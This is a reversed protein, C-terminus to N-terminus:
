DKKIKLDVHGVPGGVHPTVLFLRSAGAPLSRALGAQVATARRLALARLDDDEVRTNALILGEMEAPSLTKDFGLANKPKVFTASKFLQELLRGRDASDLQLDDPSAVTGDGGAQMLESLKRAKMRHELLFRRLGERDRQGDAGGEIEFSIGPREQMAKALTGLKQRATGDLDAAGAAFDVRSLEDGGGFASAILSFPATVAKVVLNGLVKLVAHAVKFDPDDLSGTIPLDIDIVGHRDKLLAVALRVPLKVADPSPVKDGFTFQDLVLRNKADLRRNAIKYDLSIGVKGKSIQYGAYKGAYPSTPPLEVDKLDVQVDAFLEKALPNIKGAIILAGTRNIAGHLDVDATTGPMSTLGSIRGGLDTLEATFAPHITRDTFAVQGGSLVVQGVTIQPAAASGPSSQAAAKSLVKTEPKTKGGPKTRTPTAAPAAGNGKALAEQLNLHADPQLALRARLDALAIEQVAIVQPHTSIRLGGLHLLKWGLLPELKDNDVTALETVDIDASLDVLPDSGAGKKIGVQGKLALTGDSVTLNVQDGFYPQFPSIQLAHLDFRLNAALPQPSCTGTVTLRGTRNIGMRLDLGLKAGPANSLNTVHLSIPDVSLVAHPQVARDEFRVGWKELDFRDLTITWAPGSPPAASAPPRDGPPPSSTAAPSPAVLTTLDLVGKEDRGGRIRADHTGIAAVSVTRAGVDVKGGAVKLDGLRLFDERADRRRLTLDGLEFFAGELRIVPPGRDREFLYGTGLRIRGDRVDFAVLDHTYAAFRAPELGDLTVTGTAALPTLRLTGKQEVTGGPEARLGITTHATAGPANSLGRVSVAVDRVVTEFAPRVSEDRFHFTAKEVTILGVGFHATDAPRSASKPGAADARRRASPPVPARQGSPVAQSRPAVPLMHELNLSGDRLRRAYAELGSVLLHDIQFRQSTLNAEAIAIELTSLALLPTSPGGAQKERLDLKELAVRGKAKLTPADGRPRAFSVDVALTFRASDVTFPLTLPVFPVYKTLDLSNLRLELVTELSDKFPKTRGAVVFPTGDVRLSLGPEVFSDVYVPLTSVFPVGVDLDTVAHRSALPRDEFTVTGGSLRLNNLSFRPPPADPPEPPEPAKPRAALRAAIDSFNYASALDAWAAATTREHVVHVYPSDLSIEKVVPARRWISALEANVYLRSFGLFPTTGDAEFIEFGEVTVSLAFPNVRVRAISVKRGLLETLQTQAVRRAVPPVVLFGILAFLTLSVVGAILLRRPWRRATAEPLKAEM